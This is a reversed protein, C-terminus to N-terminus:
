VTREPQKKAEFSSGSHQRRVRTRRTREAERAKRTREAEKIRDESIEAKGGLVAEALDAAARMVLTGQCASRVGEALWGLAATVAAAQTKQKRTAGLRLPTEKAIGNRMRIADEVFYLGARMTALEDSTYNIYADLRDSPGRSIESVFDRLDKVSRKLGERRRLFEREAALKKPFEKVLLDFEICAGIINCAGTEDVDFTPFAKVARGDAALRNLVDNANQDLNDGVKARFTDIASKLSVSM